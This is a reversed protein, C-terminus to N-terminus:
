YGWNGPRMGMGSMMGTASNAAPAMPPATITPPIGTTVAIGRMHQRGRPQYYGAGWGSMTPAAAPAMAGGVTRAVIPQLVQMAAAAFGFVLSAHAFRRTFGMMGFAKSLLWGTGATIIPQNYQGFPLFRAAFGGVIPMAIGQAIGAVTFNLIEAGAAGLPNRFRSSHRRRHHRVRRVPNIPNRHRAYVRRKTSRRKTHRRAPNVPNVPNRRAHVRRKTSRKRKRTAM